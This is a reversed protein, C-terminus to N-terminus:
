HNPPDHYTVGPSDTLGSATRVRSSDSPGDAIRLLIEMVRLLRGAMEAADDDHLTEGHKARWIAKFDELSRKSIATPQLDM